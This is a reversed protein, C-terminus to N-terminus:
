DKIKRRLTYITTSKSSSCPSSSTWILNESHAPLAEEKDMEFVITYPLFFDLLEPMDPSIKITTYQIAAVGATDLLLTPLLKFTGPFGILDFHLLNAEQEVYVSYQRWWSFGMKVPYILNPVSSYQNAFHYKDVGM